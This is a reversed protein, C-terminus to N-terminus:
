YVLAEKNSNQNIFLSNHIYRLLSSIVVLLILCLIDAKSLMLLYFYVFCGTSCLGITLLCWIVFEDMLGVFNIFM